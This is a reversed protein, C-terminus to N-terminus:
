LLDDCAVWHMLLSDDTNNADPDNAYYFCELYDAEPNSLIKYYGSSVAVAGEGITQTSQSYDVVNVVELSGLEVAKDRAYSEVDVWMYRNVEPVQPIINALSYTAELSEQSWDFSADPALHGRDYGSGVYDDLTARYAVDISEEEYFEPREEINLENVLDGELTYAVSRAAKKEYDYCVALFVKDVVMDCQDNIFQDRLSLTSNAELSTTNLETSNIETSNVETLNAEQTPTIEVIEATTSNEERTSTTTNIAESESATQTLNEESLNEETSQPLVMEEEVPTATTPTVTPIPDTVLSYVPATTEDWPSVVEEEVSSVPAVPTRNSEAVSDTTDLPATVRSPAGEAVLPDNDVVLSANGELNEEQVESLVNSTLEENVEVSGCGILLWTLPIFLMFKMM